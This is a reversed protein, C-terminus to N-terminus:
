IDEESCIICKKIQQHLEEVNRSNSANVFKNIVAQYKDKENKKFPIM